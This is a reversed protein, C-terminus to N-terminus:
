PLFPRAGESSPPSGPTGDAAPLSFLLLAQTELDPASKVVALVRAGLADLPSLERPAAGSAPGPAPNPLPPAAALCRLLAGLLRDRRRMLRGTALSWAEAGVCVLAAAFNAAETM